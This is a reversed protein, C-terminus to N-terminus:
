QFGVCVTSLDPHPHAQLSLARDIVLRQRRHMDSRWFSEHIIPQIGAARRRRNVTIERGHSSYQRESCTKPAVFRASRPKSRLRREDFHRFQLVMHLSRRMDQRPVLLGLHQCQQWRMERTHSQELDVPSSSLLRVSVPM